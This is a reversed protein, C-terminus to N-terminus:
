HATVTNGKSLAPYAQVFGNWNVAGWGTCFDWGPGANSPNGNPLTGNSGSTIDYWVSPNGNQSYILDQIRGLRARGAPNKYIKNLKLLQQEAIALGGAFIPCAFSTGVYGDTLSYYYYFFYAGETTNYTGSAHGAVDPSLRYNVNTPVGNGKQWAPRRNFPYNVLSWGGSGDLWAVESNRNGQSTVDASTGGVILVEPEMVPYWYEQEEFNQDDGSAAMYTIGQGSMELHLTHAEVATTQALAWAYSETIIDCKNENEEQTYVALVQQDTATDGGGAGDYIIVTALPAQGIVM